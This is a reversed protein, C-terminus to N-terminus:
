KVLTGDETAFENNNSSLLEDSHTVSPRNLQGIVLFNFRINSFLIIDRVSHLM